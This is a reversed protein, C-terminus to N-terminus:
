SEELLADVELHVDALEATVTERYIQVSWSSKWKM